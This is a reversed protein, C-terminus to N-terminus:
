EPIHFLMLSLKVERNEDDNIHFRYHYWGEEQESEFGLYNSHQTIAEKATDLVTTFNKNRVFMVVASKSDRWTLYGLLQTITDLFGKQGHWFKLEAIFINKGEHRLLIDTKGSKNFTEGTAAGEFNPELILLMHDRLHEEEKGSYTSPLREFQKGVDHIIKLIQVYITNDITPEPTYGKETVTPKPKEAIAKTRQAPVSFTSSTKGAQRVPVGLASILDNKQLLQQKRADFAQKAISEISNNFNNLDSELHANQSIIDNIINDSEQRIREPTLNFNIIKFCIFNNELTILPPSMSYTSAKVKLLQQDGSFPLHFQIVDRAYSSGRDMFYDNPNMEAPVQEEHSSVSLRDRYIKIPDIRFKSILHQIYEEKNVNLIYDDNQGKIAQTIASKQKELMSYGDYESFAHFGDRRYTRM